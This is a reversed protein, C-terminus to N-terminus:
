HSIIENNRITTNNNIIDMRTNKKLRIRNNNFISNDLRVKVDGSITNNEFIVGQHVEDDYASFLNVCVITNNNIIANSLKRFVRKSAQISNNEIKVSSVSDAWVCYLVRTADIKCNTVTVSDCGEFRIPYKETASINCNRIAVSGVHAGKAKGYILFGGKCNNVSISDILVNDVHEYSNPEVDIAYEPNTGEIDYINCRRVIISDVDIISIGQRRGRRLNCDEIIVDWSGKCVCICDGWCDSISMNKITVNNSGAVYIGMGWEGKTGLHSQRDGVICGDGSITVNECKDVLLVYSRIQDNPKLRINGEIILDTNSNLKIGALHEADTSVYYDGNEITITNHISSDSLAIVNQLSNDDGLDVFMATSIEPVNWTGHIRVHKFINKGGRIKTDNGILTGNTIRGKRKFVLECGPAIVVEEGQLDIENIIYYKQSGKSFLTHVKVFNQVKCPTEEWRVFALPITAVIAIILIIKKM